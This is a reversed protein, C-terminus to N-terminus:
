TPIAILTFVVLLVGAILMSWGGMKWFLRFLPVPYKPIILVM